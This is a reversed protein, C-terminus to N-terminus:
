LAAPGGGGGSEAGREGGSRKTGTGDEGTVTPGGVGRGEEGREGVGAKKGLRRAAGGRREGRRTTPATLGLNGNGLVIQVNIGGSRVVEAWTKKASPTNTRPQHTNKGRGGTKTTPTNNATTAAWKNDAKENRRKKQAAKGEVTKWGDKEALATTTPADPLTTDQAANSDPLPDTTVETSTIALPRPPYKRMLADLADQAASTAHQSHILGHEPSADRKKNTAPQQNTPTTPGTNQDSGRRKRKTPPNRVAVLVDQIDHQVHSLQMTMEEMASPSYTPDPLPLAPFIIHEDLQKTLTDVTAKLSATEATSQRYAKRLAVEELAMKDVKTTLNDLKDFVTQFTSEMEDGIAGTCREILWELHAGIAANAACYQLINEASCEIEAGFVHAHVGANVLEKRWKRVPTEGYDDTYRPSLPPAESAASPACQLTNGASFGESEDVTGDRGDFTSNSGDEPLDV